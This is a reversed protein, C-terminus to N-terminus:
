FGSTLVEEFHVCHVDLSHLRWCSRWILKKCEMPFDPHLFRSQTGLVLVSSVRLQELHPFLKPVVLPFIIRSCLYWRWTFFIASILFWIFYSGCPLTPTCLAVQILKINIFDIKVVSPLHSFFALMLLHFLQIGSHCELVVVDAQTVASIASNPASTPTSSRRISIYFHYRISHHLGLCLIPQFLICNVM